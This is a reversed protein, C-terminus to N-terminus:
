DGSWVALEGEAMSVVRKGGPAVFTWAEFDPDPEVRLAVGSEFVVELRGSDTASASSIRQEVLSPPDSEGPTVSITTGANQVTYATEIQLESGRDTRLTLNFEAEQATVQQGDLELDM